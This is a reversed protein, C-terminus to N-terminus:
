LDFGEPRYAPADKPLCWCEGGLRTKGHPNCKVTCLQQGEVNHEILVVLGVIVAVIAVVVLWGSWAYLTKGVQEFFAAWTTGRYAFKSSRIRHSM